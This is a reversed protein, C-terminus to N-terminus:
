RSMPCQAATPDTSGIETVVVSFVLSNPQNAQFDVGLGAHRGRGQHRLERIM